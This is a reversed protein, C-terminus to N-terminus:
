HVFEAVFEIRGPHTRFAFEFEFLKYWSAPISLGRIRYAKKRYLFKTSLSRKRTQQIHQTYFFHAFFASITGIYMRRSRVYGRENNIRSNFINRDSDSNGASFENFGPFEQVRITNVSVQLFQLKLYSIVPIIRRSVQCVSRFQQITCSCLVCTLLNYLILWLFSIICRSDNM